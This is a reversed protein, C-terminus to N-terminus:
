SREIGVAQTAADAKLAITDGLLAVPSFLELVAKLAGAEAKFLQSVVLVSCVRALGSFLLDVNSAHPAEEAAALALDGDADSFAWRSWLLLFLLALFPPTRRQFVIKIVILLKLIVWHRHREHIPYRDFHKSV